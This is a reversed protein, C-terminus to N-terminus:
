LLLTDKSSRIHGGYHLPLLFPEQCWMDGFRDWRLRGGKAESPQPIM